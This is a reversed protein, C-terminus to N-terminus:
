SASSSSTNRSMLTDVPSAGSLGFVKGSVVFQHSPSCVGRAIGRSSLAAVTFM